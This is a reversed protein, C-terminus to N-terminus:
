ASGVGDGVLEAELQTKAKGLSAIQRALELSPAIIIPEPRFPSTRQLDPNVFVGGAQEFIIQNAAIDWPGQKVSVPNNDHVAARLGNPDEAVRMAVGAHPFNSTMIRSGVPSRLNTKLLLVFGTEFISNGYQNVEVWCESLQVPGTKVSLKQGDKWAGIEQEAYFWEGTLPFYTIGLVPLGNECISILVSPLRPSAAMLYATSGDLPDVVWMRQNVDNTRPSLEESLIPLSSAEKLVATAARDADFDVRSVLDVVEKADIQHVKQYGDRIIKGAELAAKAGTRMEFSHNDFFSPLNDVDM